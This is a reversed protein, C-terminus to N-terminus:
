ERMLHLIEINVDMITTEIASMATATWRSPGCRRACPRPKTAASEPRRWPANRPRSESCMTWNKSFPRAQTLQDDTAEPAKPDSAIMRRIQDESLHKRNM